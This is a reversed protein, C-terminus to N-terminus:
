AAADTAPTTPREAAVERTVKVARVLALIPIVWELALVLIPRAGASDLHAAAIHCVGVVLVTVGWVTSLKRNVSRFTPTNWYQRPVEQKAFDATFPAVSATAVIFAGLLLSAGGRANLTLFNDAGSGGIFAVLAIVGMIVSQAVPLIKLGGRATIAVLILAAVLAIVASWGIALWHALVGFLLFPVFGLIIKVPNMITVGTTEAVPRDSM